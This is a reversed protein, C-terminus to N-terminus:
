VIVAEVRAAARAALVGAYPSVWPVILEVGRQAIGVDVSHPAESRYAMTTRAIKQVARPVQTRPHENEQRSRYTDDASVSQPVLADHALSHLAPFEARVNALQGAFGGEHVCEHEFFEFREHEGRFAQAGQYYGLGFEAFAERAGQNEPSHCCDLSTIPWHKDAGAVIRAHDRQAVEQLAVSLRMHREIGLVIWLRKREDFSEGGLEVIEREHDTWVPGQETIWVFQLEGGAEFQHGLEIGGV